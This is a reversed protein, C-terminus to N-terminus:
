TFHDFLLKRLVHHPHCFSRIASTAEPKGTCMWVAIPAILIKAFDHMVCDHPDRFGINWFVSHRAGDCRFVQFLVEIGLALFFLLFAPPFYRPLIASVLQHRWIWSAMQHLGRLPEWPLPWTRVMADRLSSQVRSGM